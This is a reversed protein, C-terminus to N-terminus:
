NLQSPNATQEAADESGGAAISALVQDSLKNPDNNININQEVSQVAKGHGRDLLRTAAEMAVREDASDLLKALTEVSKTSYSRALAAVNIKAIQRVPPQGAM